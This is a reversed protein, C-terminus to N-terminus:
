KGEGCKGEGCKGESCKNEACKGEGCKAEAVKSAEVPAAMTGGCKGEGCSTGEKAKKADPEVPNMYGSSLEKQAFPNIDSACGTALGAIISASIAFKTKNITKM